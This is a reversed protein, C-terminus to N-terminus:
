KEAGTPQERALRRLARARIDLMNNKVTRAMMSECICEALEIAKVM